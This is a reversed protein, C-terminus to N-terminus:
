LNLLMRLEIEPDVGVVDAATVGHLKGKQHCITTHPAGLCQKMNVQPLTKRQCLLAAKETKCFNM